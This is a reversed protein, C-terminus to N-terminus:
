HPLRRLFEVATWYGPQRVVLLQHKNLGAVKREDAKRRTQRKTQYSCPYARCVPKGIHWAVVDQFM